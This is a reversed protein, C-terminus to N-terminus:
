VYGRRRRGAWDAALLLVAAVLAWGNDWIEVNRRRDVEVVEPNVLELKSWPADDATLYRGGTQKAMAALLDPRPAGRSLEISRSEVVFVGQGEGLKGAPGTAEARVTYAGGPLDSYRMRSLGGEGTTVDNMRVVGSGSAELTLRVHATPVPQYDQGLVTVTVDAPAAVEFRRREPVVRVRSHGPDRVLWRLTNSWFRHYARDSAGGEDGATFRWRWTSDSAIALTRGQGADMVAILPLPSGDPGNNEPDVVLATAGSNLGGTRNESKWAGLQRWASDNSGAGRTLDTVPHTRGAPTLTPRVVRDVGGGAAPVLPLIDELDTGLYGGDGFSQDGGIMVFGLGADRVAARINPLYHEMHYPRYDFNQFIVVDFSRLESTFLKEVPFPILSLENEGAGTLDTPTRLIFFSILDVNPNEKLHQRLFREDWSPRGAVQLVRIKDRIVSLVFSRENNSTVAEGALLPVSVSYVFEGIKDPKSKVAVRTRGEKGLVVTQQAVVEGNRKLTLPLAVGAFGVAEIVVEIEFTNHVFAFEDGHVDTLAVDRFGGGAAYVTNVPVGLRELRGKAQTSLVGRETGEAEATDAGDSILVVGALPKGGGSDRARELATVLDSGEAVPPSALVSDSIPADLDFLEVLNSEALRALGDKGAEFLALATDYRPPGDETALSMSRSRDVVVALRNKVRRVVRLQLAPEILFGLVLLAGLVRTAVLFGPRRVRRYSWVVFAAAAITFVVALVLSTRGLPSLSVLTWDTYTEPM